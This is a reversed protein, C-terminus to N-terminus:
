RIMIAEKSLGYLVIVGAIGVILYIVQETKTLQPKTQEVRAISSVLNKGMASTYWNIAGIAAIVISIKFLNTMHEKALLDQSM